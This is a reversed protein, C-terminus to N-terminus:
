ALTGSYLLEVSHLIPFRQGLHALLKVAIMEVVVRVLQFLRHNLWPLHKLPDLRHHLLPVFFLLVDLCRLRLSEIRHHVATHSEACGRVPHYAIGLSPRSRQTGVCAGIVRDILLNATPTGQHDLRQATLLVPIHQKIRQGVHRWIFLFQHHPKSCLSSLFDALTTLHPYRFRHASRCEARPSVHESRM